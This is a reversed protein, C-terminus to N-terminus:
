QLMSPHAAYSQFLTSPRVRTLSDSFSEVPSPGSDFVDTLRQTSLRLTSPIVSYSLLKRCRREVRRLTVLERCCKEVRQSARPNHNRPLLTTFYRTLLM